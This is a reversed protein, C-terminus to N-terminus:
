PTPLPRVLAGQELVAQARQLDDLTDIDQLIGPDEVPLQVVRGQCRLQQLVSRAGQDGTLQQLAAACPASFGVPHGPQGNCVPQVADFRDTGLLQQAITRLTAAHVLPMDGPLILWGSADSTARVGSSISDGMGATAAGDPRVVFAQLGADAVTDLVHQLVPKDFLSAQLKHTRGGSATFRQGQGAALVLVKLSSLSPHPHAAAATM